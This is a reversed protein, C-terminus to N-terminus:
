DKLARMLIKFPSTSFSFGEDNRRNLSKLDDADALDLEDLMDMEKRSLTSGRKLKARLKDAVHERPINGITFDSDEDLGELERLDELDQLEEIKELDLGDHLARRTKDRDLFEVPVNPAQTTMM